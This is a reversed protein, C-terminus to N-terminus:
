RMEALVDEFVSNWDNQKHQRFLKVSDYWDCVSLDTHWRWNVEYPLVIWCPIGMAGALHALSTDNCIVLDLNAMAAATQSFDVFDKGVDIIGKLVKADESGEFTQFSYYQTNEVQMLPAFAEAPIVRDYDFYTNGQWKIGVKIKDNEFYKKKYKEVLDMNPKLYGSSYAFVKNVKLKLLYPLSLMPTHVDFDIESEPIYTDIVQDIGLNNQKFLTSLPKQCMFILKKCKKAVLPLYRAFMLVDGFGAEYYVLLTKDSINEGNWINDLRAKNPYTKNQLAITATKSFRSEFYKFGKDYDKLRMLALGLFYETDPDNPKIKNCIKLASLANKTEAEVSYLHSLNFWCDYSSPDIKLAKEYFKIAEKNRKLNRYALAVNFLLSFNDPFKELVEHARKAIEKYLKARIYTQFLTEYFYANPQKEVAQEVWHVASIVDQQQLKLVGLLNYIEANDKDQELAKKYATEAEELKGEQHLAFGEQILEETAPMFEREKTFM